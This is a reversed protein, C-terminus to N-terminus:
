VKRRYVASCDVTASEQVFFKAPDSLQLGIITAFIDYVVNHMSLSLHCDGADIASCVSGSM